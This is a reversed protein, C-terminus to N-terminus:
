AGAGDHVDLVHPLGRHQGTIRDVCKGGRLLKLLKTLENGAYRPIAGHIDSALGALRVIHQAYMSPPGVVHPQLDVSHADFAGRRDPFVPPTINWSPLTWSYVNSNPALVASVSVPPMRTFM